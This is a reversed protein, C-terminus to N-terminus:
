RNIIMKNKLSTYVSDVIKVCTTCVVFSIATEIIMVMLSPKISKFFIPFFIELIFTSAYIFIGFSAAQNLYRNKISRYPINKNILILEYLYVVVAFIVGSQFGGGPVYDGHFHIYFGFILALPFITKILTDLLIIDNKFVSINSNINVKKAKNINSNNEIGLM